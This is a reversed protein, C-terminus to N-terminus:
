LLFMKQNALFSSYEYCKFLAFAIEAIDQQDDRMNQRLSLVTVANFSDVVLRVAILVVIDSNNRTKLISFLSYGLCLQISHQSPANQLGLSPVKTEDGTDLINKAQSYSGLFQGL